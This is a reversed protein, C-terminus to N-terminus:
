VLETLKWICELRDRAAIQLQEFERRTDARDLGSRWLIAANEPPDRYYDRREGALSFGFKSYLSRAPLNSVRVELTAYRLQRAIACEKLLKALLFQGLGSGRWPTCVCLLTIHAEDLIAWLCGWAVIQAPAALVLLDSNPSHLERRYGDERWLGGLQERDRAALEPVDAIAAPRLVLADM